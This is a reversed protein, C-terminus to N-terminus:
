EEKEQNANQYKEPIFWKEINNYINYSTPNDIGEVKDAVLIAKNRFLLSVYPLEDIILKQLKNYAEKKEKRSAARFAKELLRDMEDNSYRIFNTGKEIQSSHFAFTLDPIQSLEWGLLVIDFDGAIIKGKIEEWQKDAQDNTISEPKKIEYDPIVKIGIDSLNEIIIDATEKRLINYSNTLLKFELKQGNENERVGDNDTDKWGANELIEKAKDKNYKYTDVKSALWSDALIPVDTTKGHGLYVKKIIRKKDIGYAIAKRIDKGQEGKFIEKDFNFGLFEYNTSTFEYIKGKRDQVYKEWDIGKALSLDVLGSKFAAITANDDKFIKGTINSVYPKGKWWNENSELKIWKLKNYEVFKYPGTGIPTFNEKQLANKYSNKNIKGDQLFQHRPLIPFTLTELANSYSRDFHIEINYDDIIKTFLIHEIDVIELSNYVNLLMKRYASDIAGYKLLDITFKVDEATFKEGDHWTVNDKLKINIVLGNDTIKYNDALVKKVNFKEDIDFLGEYILKNFYYISKKRNLLPNLTEVNSIPLILEGGYVPKVETDINDETENGNEDKGDNKVECGVFSFILSIILIIVAIRRFVM